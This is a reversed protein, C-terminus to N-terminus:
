RAFSRNDDANIGSVLGKDMQSERYERAIRDWDTAAPYRERYGRHATGEELARVVADCDDPIMFSRKEDRAVALEVSYHTVKRGSSPEAFFADHGEDAVVQAPAILLAAIGYVLGIILSATVGCSRLYRTVSVDRNLSRFFRRNM